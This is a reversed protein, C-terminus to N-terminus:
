SSSDHPPADARAQTRCWDGLEPREPDNTPVHAVGGNAEAFLRLKKFSQDWTAEQLDFNFGIQPPPACSPQTFRDSNAGAPLM